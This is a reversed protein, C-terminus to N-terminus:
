GTTFGVGTSHTAPTYILNEVVADERLTESSRYEGCGVAVVLWGVMVVLIFVAEAGIRRM